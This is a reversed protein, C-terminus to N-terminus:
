KEILSLSLFHNKGEEKRDGDEIINNIGLVILKLHDETASEDM